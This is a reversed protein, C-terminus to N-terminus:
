FRTDAHDWEEKCRVCIAGDGLDAWVEHDCDEPDVPEAEAWSSTAPKDLLDWNRLIADPSAPLDPFLRKYTTSRGLYEDSDIGADRCERVARNIRGRQTEPMSAGSLYTKGFWQEYMVTFLMAPDPQEGDGHVDDDDGHVDTEADSVLSLGFTTLDSHRNESPKGTVPTLDRRDGMDPPPENDVHGGGSVIDPTLPERGSVMDPPSQPQLHAAKQPHLPTVWYLNVYRGYM